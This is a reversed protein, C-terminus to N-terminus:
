KAEGHLATRLIPRMNDDTERLAEIIGTELTAIRDSPQWPQGADHGEPREVLGLETEVRHLTVESARSLSHVVRALRQEKATLTPQTQDM